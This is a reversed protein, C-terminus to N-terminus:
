FTGAVAVTLGLNKKDGWHYNSTFVISVNEGVKEVFAAKVEKDPLAINVMWYGHEGPPISGTAARISEMLHSDVFERIPPGEVPRIDAMPEKAM